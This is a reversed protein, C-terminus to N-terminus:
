LNKCDGCKSGNQHGMGKCNVKAYGEDEWDFRVSQLRYFDNPLPYIVQIGGRDIDYFVEAKPHQQQLERVQKLIMDLQQENLKKM